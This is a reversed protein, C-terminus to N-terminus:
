RRRIWARADVGEIRESAIVDREVLDPDLSRMGARALRRERLRQYAAERESDDLTIAAAPRCFGDQELEFVTDSTSMGLIRAADRLRMHGSRYQEGVIRMVEAREPDHRRVFSRLADYANRARHSLSPEDVTRGIFELGDIPCEAVVADFSRVIQPWDMKSWDGRLLEDDQATGVGGLLTRSKEMAAPAEPFAARIHQDLEHIHSKLDDLSRIEHEHVFEWALASAFFVELWAVCNELVTRMENELGSARSAKEATEIYRGRVASSRSRLVIDPAVVTVM